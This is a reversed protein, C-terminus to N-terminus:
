KGELTSKLGALDGPSKPTDAERIGGSGRDLVMMHSRADAKLLWRTAYYDGMVIPNFNLKTKTSSVQEICRVDDCVGAFEVSPYLDRARNWLEIESQFKSGHIVFVAVRKADPPLKDTPNGQRDFGALSRLAAPAEQPNGTAAALRAVSRAERLDLRVVFGALFLLGTCLMFDFFRM